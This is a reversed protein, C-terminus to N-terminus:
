KLELCNINKNDSGCVAYLGSESDIAVKESAELLIGTATTVDSAGYYINNTSNNYLIITKRGAQESAPLLYQTDATALNITTNAYTTFGDGWKVWKKTSSDWRYLLTPKGGEASM